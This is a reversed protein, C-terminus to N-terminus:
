SSAWANRSDRLFGQRASSGHQGSGTSYWFGPSPQERAAPALFLRRALFPLVSALAMVSWGGLGIPVLGLARRLDPVVFAAGQAAFSGAVISMLPSNPAPSRRQGPMARCTLTHHLQGAVLSGFMLTRMEQSNAGFRFAGYLGAVLAGTALLAGDGLLMPVQNDGLLPRETSEPPRQMAELDSGEFALGVGPLVDTLLNIWLLQLPNLAEGLGGATAGLMLLVESANTGILFRLSKRLNTRTRRAQEIADVLRTVQDTQLFVDAVERAAADSRLTMALGVDSARLAPSDNVGDGTMAVVAGSGQLARVIKLKQAPTVRAFVHVRAAAEAIGAADLCEVDSADMVRVHGHAALGIKDAVTRATACQDGTLMITRIGARHLRHVAERVGPRIPDALGIAGVWTLAQEFADFTAGHPLHRFAFGLVRLGSGAMRVNLREIAARRQSTLPAQRGDLTAEHGCRALVEVPNGKMAVLRGKPGEHLTAMFRYAETRQQTAIRPWRHRVAIVEIGNDIAHGVLATETSSGTLMPKAGNRKLEVDSCLCAIELLKRVRQDEQGSGCLLAAVSMRNETLTGTKDFCIVNVAALTEITDLRRVHVDHRRLANVGLAHATTAVMPLGEPVSAVALSLASRAMQWLGLGRVVGFLFLVLSAGGTLWALRSGLASLQRQSPPEPPQSAEVL